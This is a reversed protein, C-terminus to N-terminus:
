QHPRPQVASDARPRMCIRAVHLKSLIGFDLAPLIVLQLQSPKILSQLPLVSADTFLRRYLDEHHPAAVSALVAFSPDVVTALPPHFLIPRQGLRAIRLEVEM